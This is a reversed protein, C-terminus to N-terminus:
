DNPKTWTIAGGSITWYGHSVTGAESATNFRKVGTLTYKAGTQNEADVKYSEDVRNCLVTKSIVYVNSYTNAVYGNAKENCWASLSGYGKRTSATYQPAVVLVNHYTSGVSDVFLVGDVNKRTSYQALEVYVNEM